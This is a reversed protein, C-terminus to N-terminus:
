KKRKSVEEDTVTHSHATSLTNVSVETLSQLSVVAAAEDDDNRRIISSATAPSTLSRAAADTTVTRRKSRSERQKVVAARSEVSASQSDDHSNFCQASPSQLRSRFCTVLELARDRKRAKVDHSLRRESREQQQQQQQQVSRAMSATHTAKTKAATAAVAAAAVGDSERQKRMWKCRLESQSHKM